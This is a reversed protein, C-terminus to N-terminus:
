EEKPVQRHVDYAALARYIELADKNPQERNYQQTLNGRAIELIRDRPLEAGTLSYAEIAEKANGVELLQEACKLLADVPPEADISSFARIGLKFEGKNFCAIGCREMKDAPPNEGLVEFADLAGELNGRNLCGLGYKRIRDQADAMNLIKLAQSRNHSLNKQAIGILRDQPLPLGAIRYLEVAYDVYTPPQGEEDRHSSSYRDRDDVWLSKEAEGLFVNGREAVKDTPMEEGALEYAKSALQVNLVPNESMHLRGHMRGLKPEEAILANAVEILKEKSPNLGETETLAEMAKKARGNSMLLDVCQLIQERALSVGLIQYIEIAHEVSSVSKKEMYEAAREFLPQTEGCVKYTRYATEIEWWQGGFYRMLDPSRDLTKSFSEAAIPLLVGKPGQEGTAEYGAVVTSLLRQKRENHQYRASDDDAPAESVVAQLEAQAAQTQALVHERPPEKGALEYFKLATQIDKNGLCYEAAALVKERPPEADTHEYCRMADHYDGADLCKEGAEAMLNAPPEVGAKKFADLSSYVSLSEQGINKLSALAAEHYMNPSPKRKAATYAREGKWLDGSRFHADGLELLRDIPDVGVTRYFKSAREYKEENILRDAIQVIREKPLPVGADACLNAVAELNETTLLERVMMEAAATDIAAATSINETAKLITDPNPMSLINLMILQIKDINKDITSSYSTM